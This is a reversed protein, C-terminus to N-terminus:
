VSITIASQTHTHSLSGERSLTHTLSLTHIHTHNSHGTPIHITRKHCKQGQVSIHRNVLMYDSTIITIRQTHTHTQAREPLVHLTQMLEFM